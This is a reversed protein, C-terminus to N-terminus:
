QYVQSFIAFKEKLLPIELLFDARIKLYFHRFLTSRCRFILNCFVFFPIENISINIVTQMSSAEFCHDVIFVNPMIVDCNM